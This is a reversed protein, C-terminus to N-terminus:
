GASKQSLWWSPTSKSWPDLRSGSRGAKDLDVGRRRLAEVVRERQEVLLKLDLM